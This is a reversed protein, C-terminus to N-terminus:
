SCDWQYYVKSFDRKLLDDRSIMFQAQGADGWMLGDMSWLNLLVRDVQQYREAGRWDDQTFQPHGGVHHREPAEGFHADFAANMTGRGKGKTIEPLDRRLNWSDLNPLHMQLQGRLETGGDDGDFFPSYSNYGNMKSNDHTYLRGKGEFDERWIVRFEGVEPKEFNAGYTADPTVFFQLVGKEPYDPIHPLMKFDIQAIFVMPDGKSSTPWGEGEALWVAGGIRSGKANYQAPGVAQLFVAPLANDEQWERFEAAALPDVPPLVPGDWPEEHMGNNGKESCSSLAQCVFLLSFAILNRRM